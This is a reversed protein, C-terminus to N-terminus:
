RLFNYKKMIKTTDWDSPSTKILRFNFRDLRLNPALSTATKLLEGKTYNYRFLAFIVGFPDGPIRKSGDGRSTTLLNM